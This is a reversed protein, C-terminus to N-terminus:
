QRASALSSPKEAPTRSAAAASMTICKLLAQAPHLLTTGDILAVQSRCSYGTALLRGTGGYEAVHNAWSMAYIRESTARHESEHGYTGAMGCCGSSLVGLELGFRAFVTQWDRVSAVAMTRETCHPLLLFPPQSGTRPLIDSHRALWEQVLLVDPVESRELVSVYEARYTLTMSPDLGVLPVGTAALDRLMAANSSAAREFAHLFGHVHLPKGNPRFPALWPRFGIAKLLDLLDLVLPTEFHSTFADQVIVVSRARETESLARLLRPTAEEVGRWGLERKFDVRSLKPSESLGIARLMAWGPASGVAMNYLVPMRTLLPLLKELSGVTYDRPPRLYRGYYLELFKARFSPVDVKIPCQGACSKCALCGDMAEKVEHSFDAEGWRKALTNRTRSALTSWGSRQRMQRSEQVPNFGLAAVQRLWERTLSARGKPSHRRERTAKWSPCMADDPDYNYCAGNGNCHM